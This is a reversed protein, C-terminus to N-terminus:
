FSKLLKRIEYIESITVNCYIECEKLVNLIANLEFKLFSISNLEASSYVKPHSATLFNKRKKYITRWLDHFTTFDM